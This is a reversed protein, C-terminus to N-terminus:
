DVIVIADIILSLEGLNYDEVGISIHVIAMELYTM